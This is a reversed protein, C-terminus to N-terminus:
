VNLGIRMVTACFSIVEHEFHLDPLQARLEEVIPYFEEDDWEGGSQLKAKEFDKKTEFSIDGILIKGNETLLPLLSRLFDVQKEYEIHHFAYTMVIFDFKQGDLEKPLEKAFDAILFSAEPMRERAQKLMEESFDVASIKWGADYLRCALTGSGTGLDLVRGVPEALVFCAIRDLVRDYGAFPYSETQNSERVDNEYDEAWDDFHSADM